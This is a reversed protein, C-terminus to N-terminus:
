KAVSDDEISGRQIADQIDQQYKQIEVAREVAKQADKFTENLHIDGTEPHIGLVKQLTSLEVVKIECFKPNTM